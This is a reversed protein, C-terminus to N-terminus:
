NGLFTCYMYMCYIVIHCHRFIIIMSSEKPLEISYMTDNVM